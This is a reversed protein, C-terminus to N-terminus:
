LRPLAGPRTTRTAQDASRRSPTPLLTLHPRTAPPATPDSLEHAARFLNIAEPTIIFARGAKSAALRGDRIARRVTREHLGLLTAAGRASIVGSPPGDDTTAVQAATRREAPRHQM